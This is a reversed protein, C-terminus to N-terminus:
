KKNTGLKLTLIRQSRDETLKFVGNLYELTPSSTKIVTLAHDSKKEFIFLGPPGNVRSRIATFVMRM